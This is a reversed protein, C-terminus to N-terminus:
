MSLAYSYTPPLNEWFNFVHNYEFSFLLAQGRRKQIYDTALISILTFTVVNIPCFNDCIDTVFFTRRFQYKELTPTPVPKNTELTPTPVPSINKLSFKCSKQCQFNIKFTLLFEVIKKWLQNELLHGLQDKNEYSLWHPWVSIYLSSYCLLM